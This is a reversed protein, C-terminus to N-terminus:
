GVVIYPGLPTSSVGNITVVVTYVGPPFDDPIIIIVQYLGACCPAAGIYLINEPPLEVDM